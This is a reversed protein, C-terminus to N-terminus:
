KKTWYVDDNKDACEVKFASAAENCILDEIIITPIEASTEVIAQLVIIQEESETADDIANDIDTCQNNRACDFELSLYKIVDNSSKELASGATQMVLKFSENTKEDISNQEIFTASIIDGAKKTTQVDIDYQQGWQATFDTIDLDLLNWETSADTNEKYILCWSPTALGCDSQFPAIDWSFDNVGECESSFTNESSQCKIGLLTLQDNEASFNLQVKESDTFAKTLSTCDTGSCTFIKSGAIIWSSGTNDASNDLLIGSSMNFTLLFNNNAPDMIETAEISELTYASDKGSDTREAEVQVTYRKGWELSGFGSMPLNTLAFADEKSTRIRFCLDTGSENCAEQYYDVYLTRTTPDFSSGLDLDCAILFTSLFLVILNKM